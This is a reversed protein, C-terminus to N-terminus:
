NQFRCERKNKYCTCDKMDLSAECQCEDERSGWNSLIVEGTLPKFRFGDLNSSEVCAKDYKNQSIFSVDGESWDFGDNPVSIDQSLLVTENMKFYDAWHTRGSCEAEHMCM